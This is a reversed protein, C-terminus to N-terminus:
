NGELMSQYLRLYREASKKSSLRSHIEASAHSGLRARRDANGLLPTMADIFSSEDNVDFLMGSSGHDIIDTTGSIRTVVCPLGCSMAELVVNPLGENLSPLIFLDATRYYDEPTTSFDRFLIDAELGEHHVLRQLKERLGVERQDRSTPGVLLLCWGFFHERYKVWTHVLWEVNKRSDFVGAFLAIPREPLGLQKRLSSRVAAEVPSFRETDVGQPIEVAKTPDLPLSKIEESIQQSLSVYRDVFGLLVKQARGVRTRGIPYLDNHAMSVLTLSNKGLMKGIIGVASNKYTSGSAHIIDFRQRLSHLTRFLNWWLVFEGHRKPGDVIRYVDFGEHRDHRPLGTNDVTVFFYQVGQKSLEKALTLTQLGAGSFHPPFYYSFACIRIQEPAITMM